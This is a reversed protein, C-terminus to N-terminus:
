QHPKPLKTTQKAMAKEVFTMRANGAIPMTMDGAEEEVREQEQSTGSITTAVKFDMNGMKKRFGCLALPLLHSLV